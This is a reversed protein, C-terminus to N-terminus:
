TAFLEERAVSGEAAGAYLLSRQVRIPLAVVSMADILPSVAGPLHDVAVTALATAARDRQNHMMTVAVLPVVNRVVEFNEAARAMASLVLLVNARTTTLLQSSCTLCDYRM